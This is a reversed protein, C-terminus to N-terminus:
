MGKIETGNFKTRRMNGALKLMVVNGDPKKYSAAHRSSTVLPLTEYIEVLLCATRLKNLPTARVVVVGHATKGPSASFANM